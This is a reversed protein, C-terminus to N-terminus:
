KVIIRNNSVTFDLSLNVTQFLSIILESKLSFDRYNMSFFLLFHIAICNRECRQVVTTCEFFPFIELTSAVGATAGLGHGLIIWTMTVFRIGHIAGLTGSPQYTNFIKSTNTYISFSLLVQGLKGAIYQLVTCTSTSYM